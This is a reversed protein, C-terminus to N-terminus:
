LLRLLAVWILTPLMGVIGILCIKLCRSLNYKRNEDPPSLLIAFALLIGFSLIATGLVALVLTLCFAVVIATSNGAVFRIVTAVVAVVLTLAFLSRLPFQTIKTFATTVTHSPEQIASRHRYGLAFLDASCQKGRQHASRNIANNHV